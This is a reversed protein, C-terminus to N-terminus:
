GLADRMVRIINGSALKGLDDATWGRDSLEAFLRPYGSVDALGVPLSSTGDFDGGIGVHHIGAVERVHDAHDAVDSVTARPMPHAAAWDGLQDPGAWPDFEVGRREAEARADKFWQSCAASVFPPVFTVMVVGGNGTIRELVQDPVNRPHDTIARASSHSFIVPRTAVDLAANMTGPSVHSLDVLVGIRQMEAVVERGFDNLGGLEPEDTASDAWPVNRNHTLTMYRVGLAHLARLVGLSSAISHGGEAGLLSAIKGSAMIRTVDAASLALELDAPQSAIMRLARDIQELTAAVASDGQLESPVFVSWFQAGVGGARLRPLDTQTFEVHGSIDVPSSPSEGAWRLAWPLDNHGDLIPTDALIARAADLSAQSTETM